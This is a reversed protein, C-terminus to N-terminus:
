RSAVRPIAELLRQRARWGARGDPTDLDLAAMSTNLYRHLFGGATGPDLAAAEGYARIARGIWGQGDLGRLIAASRPRKLLAHAQVVFHFLDTFPLAEDHAAEWDVLTWGAGTWLLNWPACDGHAAGMGPASRSRTSRFFAGLSAAVGIPLLWPHRRVRWTVATTVLAGRRRAVISPAAVPTELRHAFAQLAAAERDLADEGAESLAVKAVKAPRGSADLLLAVFREPHNARMVALGGGAPMDPAVVDQIAPLPEDSLLVLRHLGLKALGRALRWGVRARTTVPHYIAL